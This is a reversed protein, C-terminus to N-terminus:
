PQLSPDEAMCSSTGVILQKQKDSLESWENSSLSLTEEGPHYEHPWHNTGVKNIFANKRQALVEQPAWSAPTMCVYAVVRLLEAEDRGHLASANGTPAGTETEGPTNCHVCRSDWLLLDGAKACILRSGLTFVPDGPQVPVFDRPLNYSHARQCVEQFQKHSGPIVCLGGTSPTAETFTLLGQVCVRSNKLPLSANQDVHWWGGETRWEPKTAWPRFVNGGDFSVILDSCDWIAEFAQKVGPLLRTHWCFASHEFGRGGLLGNGQSPLWGNEKGWTSSDHRKVRMETAHELYEWMLMKANAVADSDAVGALVVYGHEELYSLWKKTDSVEFRPLIDTEMEPESLESCDFGASEAERRVAKPLGHDDISDLAPWMKYAIKYQKIAGSFDGADEKAMAQRLFPLAEEKGFHRAIQELKSEM